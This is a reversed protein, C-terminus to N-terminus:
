DVVNAFFIDAVKENSLGLVQKIALIESAKFESKNHLKNFFATQTIGAAKAVDLRSLGARKIAVELEVTNTM